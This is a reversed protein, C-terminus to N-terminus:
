TGCLTRVSCWPAGPAAFLLAADEHPLICMSPWVWQAIMVALPLDIAIQERLKVAFRALWTSKPLLPNDGATVQVM